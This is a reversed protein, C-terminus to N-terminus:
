EDDESSSVDDESSNSVVEEEEVETSVPIAGDNWFDFLALRNNACVFLKSTNSVAEVRSYWRVQFEMRKFWLNKEPINKNTLQSLDYLLVEKKAESNVECLTVTQSTCHVNHYSKESEMERVLEGTTLHFVKLGRWHQGGVVLVFPFSLSLMWVEVAMEHKTHLLSLTNLDWVQVVGRTGICAWEENGDIHTIGPRGTLSHSLRWQGSISDRELIRVIGDEGGVIARKELMKIGIGFEDQDREQGDHSNERYEIRGDNKDFITVLGNGSVAVVKSPGIDVQTGHSRSCDTVEYKLEGLHADFALVNGIDLALIVLSEDCVMYSVSSDCKLRILRSSPEESKWRGSLRHRLYSRSTKSSWVRRQIFENWQSCTLRCNKLSVPDLNLFINLLIEELERAFLERIISTDSQAGGM